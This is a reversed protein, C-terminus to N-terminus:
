VTFIDFFKIPNERLKIMSYVVTNETQISSYLYRADSYKDYGITATTEEWKKM